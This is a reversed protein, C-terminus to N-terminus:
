ARIYDPKGQCPFTVTQEERGRVEGGETPAKVKCKGTRSHAWAPDDPHNTATFDVVQGDLTMLVDSIGGVTWDALFTLELAYAPDADEFFENDGDVTSAFTFVREGDETNNVVRWSRVQTEYFVGNLEFTLTKLRKHKPPM